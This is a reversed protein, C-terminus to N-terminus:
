ADVAGIGSNKDLLLFVFGFFDWPFLYKSIRREIQQNSLKWTHVVFCDGNQFWSVYATCKIEKGKFISQEIIKKILEDTETLM